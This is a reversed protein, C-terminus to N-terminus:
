VGAHSPPVFVQGRRGLPELPVEPWPELAQRLAQHARVESPADVEAIFSGRPVGRTAAKIHVGAEDLRAAIEDSLVIKVRVVQRM